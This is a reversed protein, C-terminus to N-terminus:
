ADAPSMFLDQSSDTGKAKEKSQCGLMLCEDPWYLRMVLLSSATLLSRVRKKTDLMQMDASMERSLTLSDSRM